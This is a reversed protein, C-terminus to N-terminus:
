FLSLTRSHPHLHIRICRPFGFCTCHVCTQMIRHSIITYLHIFMSFFLSKACFLYFGNANEVVTVFNACLCMFVRADVGICKWQWVCLSFCLANKKRELIIDLVYRKKKRNQEINSTLYNSCLIASQFTKRVGTESLLYPIRLCM